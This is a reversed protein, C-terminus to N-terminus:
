FSTSAAAGGGLGVATATVVCPSISSITRTVVLAPGDAPFLPLITSPRFCLSRSAFLHAHDVAAVAHKAVARTRLGAAIIRFPTCCGLPLIASPGFAFLTSAQLLAAFVPTQAPFGAWNRACRKVFLLAGWAALWQLHQTDFCKSDAAQHDDIGPM